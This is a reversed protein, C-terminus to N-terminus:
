ADPSKLLVVVKAQKWAEPSYGEGICRRYVSELYELLAKFISKCMEGTMGDLGPSKRSKARCMSVDVELRELPLPGAVAEFLRHVVPEALPFLAELLAGTFQRWTQLNVGNGRLGFLYTQRRRGRVIRYVQGWPDDM